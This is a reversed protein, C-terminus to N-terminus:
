SCSGFVLADFILAPKQTGREAVRNALTTRQGSEEVVTSEVMGLALQAPDRGSPLGPQEAAAVSVSLGGAVQERHDGAVDLEGGLYQEAV